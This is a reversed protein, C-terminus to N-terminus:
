NKFPNTSPNPILHDTHRALPACVVYFTVTTIIFKFIRFFLYRLRFLNIKLSYM